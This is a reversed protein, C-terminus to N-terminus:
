KLLKPSQTVKDPPVFSIELVELTKKGYAFEFLEFPTKGNLSKRKINNIHSFILNVDCQTLDDFSTGKPLIDRLLTHNKEVKPKQYAKNPDCFFLSTEKQEEFNNEFATVNSFEGGNDTLIVPFVDGFRLNREIFKAKLHEVKETVESATKNSLLIGVMFNFLTFNLTMIVKGGIRGIVTDMEVWSDFNNEDCFAIFDDYTRGIRIARPVSDERKLTRQKFKVVRPFDLPGVSLYGKKLHRYITSKSVGLDNTKLIHYLRQGNKICRSVIRDMEYFSEKSLPIGERAEKLLSEYAFQAPKAHYFRKQFACRRHKQSCPNCVFPAKLLEPCLAPTIPKGNQDKRILGDDNITIHKKVEKSVTTQDKGIRKAIAKFTMGHNLCSQIETRDDLNLHKHKKSNLNSMKEEKHFNGSSLELVNNPKVSVEVM